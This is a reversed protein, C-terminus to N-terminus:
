GREESSGPGFWHRYMSIIQLAGLVLMASLLAPMLYFALRVAPSLQSLVGTLGTLVPVGIVVSGIAWIVAVLLYVRVRRSPQESRPRDM